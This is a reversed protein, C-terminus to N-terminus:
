RPNSYTLQFAVFCSRQGFLQRLGSSQIKIPVACSLDMAVHDFEGVKYQYHTFTLAALNAFKRRCGCAFRHQEATPQRIPASM